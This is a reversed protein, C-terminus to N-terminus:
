GNEGPPLLAPPDGGCGGPGGPPRPEVPVPDPVPQPTPRVNGDWPPDMAIPPDGLPQVIPPMALPNLIKM